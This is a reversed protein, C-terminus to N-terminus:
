NVFTTAYGTTINANYVNTSNTITGNYVLIPNVGTTLNVNTNLLPNPFTLSTTSSTGTLTARFTPDGYVNCYTFSHSGGTFYITPALSSVVNTANTFVSRPMASFTGGILSGSGSFIVPNRGTTYLAGSEDKLSLYNFNLNSSLQIRIYSLASAGNDRIWINNWVVSASGVDLITPNTQVQNNWSIQINKDGLITGQQYYLKPNNTNGSGSSWLSIYGPISTTGSITFNGPTNIYIANQIAAQPLINEYYGNTGNFVINTTGQLNGYSGGGSGSTRVNSVYLNNGNITPNTNGMVVLLNTITFNDALTKTTNTGTIQLWPIVKGNSRMTITNGSLIIYAVGSITMGSGFITSNGTGGSTFTNTMTLTNVYYTFDFGAVTSAVNITLQGSATGGYISDTTLPVVGGVWTGTANFDGGTNSITIVAM